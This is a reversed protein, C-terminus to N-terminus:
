RVGHEVCHKAFEISNFEGSHDTRFARLWRGQEAKALSQFQKIAAVAQDKFCLTRLWMFLSCDDVLLLFYRSGTPTAPMIPGCLDSHVLGLPEEERFEAQQPFSTHRHKGVVCCSCVQDAHDIELLGRVMGDRALKRLALFNLHRFRVHWLWSSKTGKVALCVPTGLEVDLIYLHNASRSVKALL